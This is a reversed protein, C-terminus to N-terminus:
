RNLLTCYLFIKPSSNWHFWTDYWCRKLDPPPCADGADGGTNAGTPIVRLTPLVLLQM